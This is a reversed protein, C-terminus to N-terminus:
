QLSTTSSPRRAEVYVRLTTGQAAAPIVDNRLHNILASTEAAQPATTPIVQVIALKAGPATPTPVVAAVGTESGLDAGAASPQRIPPAAQRPWSSCRAM